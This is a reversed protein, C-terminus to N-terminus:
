YVYLIFVIEERRGYTSKVIKLKMKGRKCGRGSKLNHIDCGKMEEDVPQLSIMKIQKKGDHIIKVMGHCRTEAKGQM